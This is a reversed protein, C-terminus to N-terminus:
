GKVILESAGIATGAIVSPSDASTDLTGDTQVFYQQGITLPIGGGIPIVMSTALKKLVDFDYTVIFRETTSDYICQTQWGNGDQNGGPNIVANLDIAFETGYSIASGDGNMTGIIGYVHNTSAGSLTNDRYVILHTNSTTDYCSSQYITGDFNTDNNFIYVGTLSISTGSVTGIKSKGRKDSADYTILVKNVVPNFVVTLYDTSNGTDVVVPTGFSISTGSVTGVIATGAASNGQDRYVIVVREANSDYTINNPEMMFVYASEFVTPTGFSISNDSNDITGVIATGYNSNNNDRYAIVVKNSASDFTLDVDGVSANEFIVPTGFSITNGSITGVAAYGKNDTANEYAIVIRNANTEFIGSIQYATISTSSTDSYSVTNTTSNITGVTYIVAADTLSYIIAFKGGGVSITASRRVLSGEHIITRDTPTPVSAATPPVNRAISGTTKVTAKQGDAYAANAFGIFNESTLPNVETTHVFVQGSSSGDAACSVIAFNNDTTNYAVSSDLRQGSSTSGSSAGSLSIESGFSISTGSVTGLIGNVVTGGDQYVILTKNLNTSFALSFYLTSASNFVVPSGFSVSTSSITAVVATGYNSNGTDRYAIVVKNNSSDFVSGMASSNASEFVSETGFSIATGSVTGVISTGYSSNGQDRYSILVRNNSSDFTVPTPDTFNGAANFVVPTGYSVNTGSITGVVATAYGNNSSDRYAIVFKNANSDFDIGMYQALNSGSFVAPTGFSVSNDSNDITAVIGTGYNSNGADRYVILFKNSNNDFAINVDATSASEFVAPTGLTATAGSVSVVVATGYNSNGHDFFVALYRNSNSDYAIQTDETRTGGSTLNVSAGVASNQTGSFGVTGDANVVVPAGETIAGSAIARVEADLAIDGVFRM